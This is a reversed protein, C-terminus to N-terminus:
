KSLLINIPMNESLFPFITSIGKSFYLTNLTQKLKEFGDCYVCMNYGFCVGIREGNLKIESIGVVSDGIEGGAYHCKLNELNLGYNSVESTDVFDTNCSYSALETFRGNEMAYVEGFVNDSHRWQSLILSNNGKIYSFCGKPSAYVEGDYQTLIIAGSVWCGGYLLMEPITDNDLYAMTWYRCDFSEVTDKSFLIDGGGYEFNKDIYQIYRQMWDTSLAYKPIISTTDDELKTFISDYWTQNDIDNLQGKNQCSVLAIFCLAIYLFSNKM